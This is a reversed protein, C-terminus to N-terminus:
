KQNDVLDSATLLDVVRDVNDIGNYEHGYGLTHVVDKIQSQAFQILVEEPNEVIETPVEYIHSDVDSELLSADLWETGGGRKVKIEGTAEGSEHDFSADNEIVTFTGCNIWHYSKEPQLDETTELM